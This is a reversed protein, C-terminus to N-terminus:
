IKRSLANLMEKAKKFKKLEDANSNMRSVESMDLLGCKEKLNKFFCLKKTNWFIILNKFDNFIFQINKDYLKFLISNDKKIFYTVHQLPISSISNNKPLEYLNTFRMFTKAFRQILSIKDQIEEDMEISNELDVVTELSNYNNYIQVFKGKPDLVLRTKDEFCIGVTGNGMLYCLDNRFFYFKTVFTRPITFNKVYSASGNSEYNDRTCQMNGTLPSNKLSSDSHDSNKSSFGNAICLNSLRTTTTQVPNQNIFSNISSLSRKPHVENVAPYKLYSHVKQIPNYLQVKESDYKLLFPHKLLDIATPRKLPDYKLIGKIFEKAEFSLQIQSPFNFICKKINEFIAEKTCGSFPARGTLMTFAAIGIAWIDSEFGNGNNNKLIIEPSMYNPTGCIQSPQDDCFTALGFDAIKVRGDSGIIFNELKLDHHIIRRNHLFSLGNIIDKLIKRTEAETLHGKESNKLYDRITKGPCYEMAIYYNSEDSFSLKSSVINSHNLNKQIQIENKLKELASNSYREKSIIKMAYAKNTKLHKVKYVTAFGGQGIKENIVFVDKTGDERRYTIKSPVNM